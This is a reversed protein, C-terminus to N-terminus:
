RLPSSETQHSVAPPKDSVQLGRGEGDVPGTLVELLGADGQFTGGGGWGWGPAPECPSLAATHASAPPSDSLSRPRSLSVALRPAPGNAKQQAQAPLGARGGSCSREPRLVGRARTPSVQRQLHLCSPPAPPSPRASGHPDPPQGWCTLCIGLVWLCGQPQAEGPLHGQPPPSTGPAESTEPESSRQGGKELKRVM